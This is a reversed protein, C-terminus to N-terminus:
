KGPAPKSDGQKKGKSKKSKDKDKKKATSYPDYAQWMAGSMDKPTQRKEFAALLPDNSDAMQQHVQARLAEAQAAYEPNDILNNLCDPDKRLDYLEEVVRYRFMQVREAIAPDTKAAAEMAKMAQGENNNRYRHEGDAWGNFIYGFRANQVCRMPVADGGAKCDIQTFVRDRGEQKQGQLLPAFSVGDVGQAPPLGAADLITPLFDIGSIFHGADVAGPAAVGPWRVMWPTRTSALYANCKAFPFAVGNDSLFMVLTNQEFGAEKLALMTKGFTDDLRRVSNFYYSVEQRVEPLDPLFGPVRVEHPEYLRSPEEAGQTKDAKKGPIHYPRHPDHSNVMLYFPKAENRCRAFFEACYDHYKTPSRGNGLEPQDHVFDWRYDAKPTSHRVKGLIGTLYGADRFLQMSTSVDRETHMFGMVGSRHPYRGTALAGRSPQCIGVTVHAREFRMGAAAFADLNPSTDPVMSGYCGLSDCNLDDATFLLINLPKDDESSGDSAAMVGLASMASARLFDRRTM